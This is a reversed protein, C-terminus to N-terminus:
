LKAHGRAERDRSDQWQKAAEGVPRTYDRPRWIDRYAADLMAFAKPFQQMILKREFLYLRTLEAANEIAMTKAYPTVFGERESLQYLRKHWRIVKDEGGWKYMLWVNLSHGLEHKIVFDIRDVPLRGSIRIENGTWYALDHEDMANDVRPEDECILTVGVRKDFIEPPCQAVVAECAAMKVPDGIRIAVGREPVINNYTLHTDAKRLDGSLLESRLLSEPMLNGDEDFAWGNPIHILECACNHAVFGECEYSEDDAVAFNYVYGEFPVRRTSRVAVGHYAVDHGALEVQGDSGDDGGVGRAHADFGEGCGVAGRSTGDRRSQAVSAHGDPRDTLLAAQYSRLPRGFLALAVRARRVVSGAALRAWDRLLHPARAGAVDVTGHGLVLAHHVYGEGLLGEPPSPRRLVGDPREVAVQGVRLVQQADFNVGAVPVASGALQRLILALFGVEVREPPRDHVDRGVCQHAGAGVHANRQLEDAAVWGHKTLFPHEPTTKLVKDAMRLEILDGRYLRKSTREVKRWRALHTWVYDGVCIDEIPVLGRRTTVRHGAPFCWPHVAGVVAKWANRKKGVNTGNAQLESLRFIKPPSGPGATLHLRNCDPCADPAPQKAVNIDDPDGEREILGATLGQQMANHKETAAIRKFDRAWDGTRHGMESAAKRWSEKREINMDLEERIDQQYRARLEADAEIAITTFDDAVKNGLGVITNAANRAAWERASKEQESLQPTGAAAMFDPLSIESAASRLRPDRGMAIGYNYAQAIVEAASAPKEGPAPQFAYALDQPLKGEDILRQVQGASVYQAGLQAVIFALHYDSVLMRIDHIHEPSAISRYPKKGEAKDLQGLVIRKEAYLRVEKLVKDLQGIYAKEFAESSEAMARYHRFTRASYKLPEAKLLVYPGVVAQAIDLLDTGEPAEVRIGDHIDTM